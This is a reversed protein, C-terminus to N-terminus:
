QKPGGIVSEDKSLRDEKSQTYQFASISLSAALTTYRSSLSQTSPKMSFGGIRLIRQMQSIRYLFLIVQQYSGRLDLKFEQELYYEKQVKRAPEIRDVRIEIKRAETLLMKMMNPVDSIEPLAGQYDTLRKQQARISDKKAEMSKLFAAGEKTKTSMKSVEEKLDAVKKQEVQLQGDSSFAFNYYKYGLFLVWGILVLFSPFRKLSEM